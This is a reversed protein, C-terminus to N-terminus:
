ILPLNIQQPFVPGLHQIVCAHLRECQLSNSCFCIFVTKLNIQRQLFVHYKILLDFDALSLSTKNLLYCIIYVTNLSWIIQDFLKRTKSNVDHISVTWISLVVTRATHAAELLSKVLGGSFQKLHTQSNLHLVSTGSQVHM